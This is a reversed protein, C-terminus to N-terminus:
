RARPLCSGDRLGMAPRSFPTARVSSFCSVIKCPLSSSITPQSATTQKLYADFFSRICYSTVALQRPGDIGLKGIKQLVWRFAHSRLLAGDDSFTFHNAGRISVRLRGNAPLRDYVSKIDFEVERVEASSSFDGEGSLLFMFPTPIGSQIVSGHLSGDVDIGAKCRPDQSCFQAAQAIGFSHGFIGVRTMDLRGTFRRSPDLTNLQGLRDLVYGIDATWATLFRNV